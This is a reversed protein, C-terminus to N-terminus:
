SNGTYDVIFQWLMLHVYLNQVSWQLSLSIHMRVATKCCTVKWQKVNQLCKGVLIFIDTHIYSGTLVQHSPVTPKLLFVCQFYVTWWTENQIFHFKM